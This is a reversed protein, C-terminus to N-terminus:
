GAGLAEQLDLVMHAPTSVQKTMHLAQRARCAARRALKVGQAIGVKCACRTVMEFYDFM